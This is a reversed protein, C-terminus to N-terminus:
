SHVRGWHRAHLRAMVCNLSKARERLGGAIRQYHTFPPMRTAWLSPQARDRPHRPSFALAYVLLLM